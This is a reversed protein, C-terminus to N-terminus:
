IAAPSTTSRGADTTFSSTSFARSARPVRMSITRSRPPLRRMRTVSSPTPMVRSSARSQRSRWAVLLIRVATSRWDTTVKPKRPSARGDMAATDRMVSSVFSPSSSTPVRMRTFPPVMLPTSSAGLRRPVVTSTPFRNKLAGARELNKFTTAASVRATLSATVTKANALAETPKVSVDSPRASRSRGGALSRVARTLAMQPLSSALVRTASAASASPMDSRPRTCRGSAALLPSRRAFRKTFPRGKRLRGRMAATSRPYRM